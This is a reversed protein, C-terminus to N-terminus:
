ALWLPTPIARATLAPLAAATVRAGVVQPPVAVIGGGPDREGVEFVRASPRAVKSPIRATVASIGTTSTLPPTVPAPWCAAAEWVPASAPSCRM